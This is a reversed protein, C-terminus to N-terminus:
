EFMWPMVGSDVQVTDIVAKGQIVGDVRLEYTHPVVLGDSERYDSFHVSIQCDKNDIQQTLYRVRELGSESDILHSISPSAPMQSIVTWCPSGDYVQDLDRAYRTGESAELAFPATPALALFAGELILASRYVPDEIPRSSEEGGVSKTRLKTGVGDFVILMDLEHGKLSKRFLNPTKSVLNMQYHQGNEQYRGRLIISHVQGMRTAKRYAGLITDVTIEGSAVAAVLALEVDGLPDTAAVSIDGAGEHSGSIFWAILAVGAFSAILMCVAILIARRKIRYGLISIRSSKRKVHSDSAGQDVESSM